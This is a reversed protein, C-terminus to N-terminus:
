PKINFADKVTIILPNHSLQCSTYAKFWTALLDLTQGQSLAQLNPAELDPCPTLQEAPINVTKTEPALVPDNPKVENNTSCGVLVLALILTFKKM